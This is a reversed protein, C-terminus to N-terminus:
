KLEEFFQLHQTAVIPWAFRTTARHRGRIAYEQRVTRDNLVREVELSWRDVDREPVLLGADGIVHPIEGSDSAIVTLGCAMAEVLMRGFQERWRETTVSPACLVDMANLWRPVDDHAADAIIRVQGARPAAFREIDGRGPGDGVFLARWPMSLRELASILTDLGKEPVFRGLYGVVPVEDDWGLRQRASRRLEASPAFVTTDVGPPIVRSPLSRYRDMRRTQTTYTTDGFAIWGTSRDLVRREFASFPFPYDKPLNQFTAFVLRAEARLRRAIQAAAAVYPEEWCHVVDWPQDLLPGLGRYLMLHPVRAARTGLAVLDSAEGPFRELTITRLDGPYEAPAAATVSWRGEGAVAMEHALRRNLGVVYSHGITLLRKM